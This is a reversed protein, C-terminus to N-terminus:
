KHNFLETQPKVPEVRIQPMVLIDVVTSIHRAIVFTLFVHLVSAGESLGRLDM